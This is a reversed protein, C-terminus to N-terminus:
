DKKRCVLIIGNLGVFSPVIMSIYYILNDGTQPPIIVNEDNTSINPITNNETNSTNKTVTFSTTATNNDNFMVKLTHEGESLSSIFNKTLTIITSGPKSAYDNQPQLPFEIDDVFVEGGDIFLNYDADIEFEAENGNIVRQKAGDIVEYPKYNEVFAPAITAYDGEVLDDITFSYNLKNSLVSVSIQYTETDFVYWGDFSFGDNPVAKVTVETGVPLQYTKRGENKTGCIEENIGEAIINFCGTGNAINTYLTTRPRYDLVTDDSYESYSGNQTIVRVAFTRLEGSKVEVSYLEEFNPDSTDTSYIKKYEGDIKEYLEWGDILCYPTEDESQAPILWDEFNLGIEYYYVDNESSKLQAIIRPNQDAEVRVFPIFVMIAFVIGLLNRFSKRM